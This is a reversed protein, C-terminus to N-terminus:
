RATAPRLAVPELPSAAVDARSWRALMAVGVLAIALSMGQALTLPGLFRDDKARLFEVLFREIGALLLYLGFLWGPARQHTRLRWILWFALLMLAVEYLQTPHVAVVETPPTGAPPTIGFDRM